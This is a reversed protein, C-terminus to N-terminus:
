IAYTSTCIWRRPLRTARSRPWGAQVHRRLEVSQLRDLILLKTDGLDRIRPAFRFGPMHRLAFGHSFCWCMNSQMVFGIYMTM